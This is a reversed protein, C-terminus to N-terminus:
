DNKEGTTDFHVLRDRLARNEEELVAMRARVPALAGEIEEGTFRPTIHQPCNWDFAHLHLVFAREPLARYDPLALRAALAPDEELSRSKMQALIKLRARNPYDMLILSVKDHVATGGLTIYQRNGRFDPFALTQDDLLKLFGRPGGRHQVYPWGTEALSAIYFSDRAAIFNAEAETFRNFTRDRKAAAYNKRSGATEQAAIVNEGTLADLFGYSM